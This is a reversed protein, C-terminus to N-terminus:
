KENPEKTIKLYATEGEQLSDLIKQLKRRSNFDMIMFVISAILSGIVIGITIGKMLEPTM